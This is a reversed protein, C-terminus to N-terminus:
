LLLSPNNLYALSRIRKWHNQKLTSLYSLCCWNCSMMGWCEPYDVVPLCDSHTRSCTQFFCGVCAKFVEGTWVVM